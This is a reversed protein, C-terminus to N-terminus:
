RNKSFLFHIHRMLNFYNRSYGYQRNTQRLSGTPRLPHREVPAPQKMAPINGAGLRGREIRRMPLHDVNRMIILYRLRPDSRAVVLFGIGVVRHRIHRTTQARTSELLHSASPVPLGKMGIRLPFAPPHKEVEPPNHEHAVHIKVSLPYPASVIAIQPKLHIDGALQAIALIVYDSDLGVGALRFVRSPIRPAPKVAVHIHHNGVGPKIECAMRQVYGRRHRFHICGSDIDLSLHGIHRKVGIREAYAGYDPTGSSLNDM